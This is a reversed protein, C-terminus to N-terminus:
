VVKTWLNHLFRGRGSCGVDGHWQRHCQKTGFAGIWPGPCSPRSSLAGECPLLWVCSKDIVQAANVLEDHLHLEPAAETGINEGAQPLRVRVHGLPVRRSAHSLQM